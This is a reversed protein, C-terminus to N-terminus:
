FNSIIFSPTLDVDAENYYITSDGELLYVHLVGDTAKTLDIFRDQDIDSAEWNGKRMIIGLENVGNLDKLNIKFIKGYDDEDDFPYSLGEKDGIWGWINWKKYRDDYRRYHVFVRM